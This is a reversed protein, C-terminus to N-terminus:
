DVGGTVSFDREASASTAPICLLYRALLSLHPMSQAHGKWWQVPDIDGDEPSLLLFAEAEIRMEARIQAETKEEEQPKLEEQACVIGATKRIREIFMQSNSKKKPPEDSAKQVETDLQVVDRKEPEPCAGGQNDGRRLFATRRRCWWAADVLLDVVDEHKRRCIKWRPDIVTSCTYAWNNCKRALGWRRQLDCTMDHALASLCADEEDASGRHSEASRPEGSAVELATAAGESVTDAVRDDLERSILVIPQDDGPDVVPVSYGLHKLDEAIQWMIPLVSSISPRKDSQLYDTADRFPRLLEVLKEILSWAATKILKSAESKSQASWAVLANKQEAFRSLMDHTSSWRTENDM